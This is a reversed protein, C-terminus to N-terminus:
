LFPTEPSQALWKLLSCMLIKLSLYPSRSIFNPYSFSLEHYFRGRKSNLYSFYCRILHLAFWDGKLDDLVIRTKEEASLKSRTNRCIEKIQKETNSMSM